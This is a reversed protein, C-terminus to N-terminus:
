SFEQFIKRRASEGIHMDLLHKATTLMASAMMVQDREDDCMQLQKDIPNMLEHMRALKVEYSRDDIM